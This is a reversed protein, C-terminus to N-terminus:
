STKFRNQGNTKKTEYQQTGSRGEYHCSEDSSQGEGNTREIATQTDQKQKKKELLLRCVLHRLSQLESTHEESRNGRSSRIGPKANPTPARPERRGSPASRSGHRACEFRCPASGRAGRFRSSWPAPGRTRPRHWPPPAPRRRCWPPRVQAAHREPRQTGLLTRDPHRFFM